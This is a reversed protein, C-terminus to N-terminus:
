WTFVMMSVGQRPLKLKVNATGATITVTELNGITELHGARELEDYQQRTPVKPSGMNQWATFANSHDHDIRYQVLQARNAGAPLNKLSLAIDSAPGPVDDDHYHWAFVFLKNGDIAAMASVDPKEGRVGTRMIDELSIAGSSEVAVRKGSMKGLMRFVNFVPLNIGGTTAMVRFGAFIPQNEFEFAWTLAGELNVGHRDAIDLERGFSAASYSSYMTTNRYGLQPGTCAACGDPDSEGIVIPKNRTEPFSAVIGFGEDITRLQNAIGMRVHGNIFSPSGKAHFSVFDLASGIQGNAFNTGHLCHQIFDHQWNGSKGSGACHSGGVRAAPLAKKVGDIAYDRLKFFDEKSGKWYGINPENWVEWYWQEVESKGYKEVCHKVWQYVLERWKEYSKPPYTWGTSISNGPGSGGPVFHHQYPEPHTSLAEPMFGIQAYPKVGNRRYADFIRDVITFDYVPKGQADETYINTSGWKFAPTGDGSTMLNHARFYAQSTGLKGIDGLLKLGDKMYAYNPEDAGFFRYIPKVDGKAQSADVIMTVAFDQQPAATQASVPAYTTMLGIAAGAVATATRIFSFTALRTDSKM